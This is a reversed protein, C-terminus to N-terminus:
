YRLDKLIKWTLLTYAILLFIHFVAPISSQVTLDIYSSVIFITSYAISPAFSILVIWLLSLHKYHWGFKKMQEFGIKDWYHQWGIWYREYDNNSEKCRHGVLASIRKEEIEEKMYKGIIETNRQEWIYRFIFPSALLPVICIIDFLTYAVMYGYSFSLILLLIHFLQLQRDSCKIIENRLAAYEKLVINLRRELSPDDMKRSNEEM